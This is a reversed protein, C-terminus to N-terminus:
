HQRPTTDAADASWGDAALKDIDVVKLWAVDAPVAVADVRWPPASWDATFRVREPQVGLAGLFRVLSRKRVARVERSVDRGCGVWLGRQPHIRLWSRVWFGLHRAEPGTLDVEDRHFM